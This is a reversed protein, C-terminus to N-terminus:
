IVINEGGGVRPGLQHSEVERRIYPNALPDSVPATIPNRFAYKMGDPGYEGTTVKAINISQHHPSDGQQSTKSSAQFTLISISVRNPSEYPKINMDPQHHKLKEQQSLM